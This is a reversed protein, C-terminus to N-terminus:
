DNLTDFFTNKKEKRKLYKKNQNRLSLITLTPFYPIPKEFIKLFLNVRKLTRGISYVTYYNKCKWM